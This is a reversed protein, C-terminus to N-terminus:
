KKHNERTSSSSEFIPRSGSTQNEVSTGPFKNGNLTTFGANFDYIKKDLSCQWVHDEIRILGTGPHDPCHRTSLPSELPRYEKTYPSDSFAKEVEAKKPEFSTKQLFLDKMKEIKMAESKKQSERQESTVYFNNILEDIVSAQKQLEPNGTLDFMTAIASLGDISDSSIPSEEETSSIESATEKLINAAEICAISVKVLHDENDEALAIIENNSNELYQAFSILLDSAKM